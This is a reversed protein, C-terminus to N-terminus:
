TKPAYTLNSKVAEGEFSSFFPEYNILESVSKPM